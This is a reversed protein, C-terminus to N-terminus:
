FGIPERFEGWQKKLSTVIEGVTAYAHYCDVLYPMLNEDETAACDALKRLTRRVEANNRQDRVAELKTIIKKTAQSDLQFIDGFDNVENDNRFYNEGVVVDEGNDKRAKRRHASEAIALTYGLEEAENVGADRIHAGAISIPNFRTSKGNLKSRNLASSRERRAPRSATVRPTVGKPLSEGNGALRAKREVAERGASCTM